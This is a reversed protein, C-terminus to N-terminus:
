FVRRKKLERVKKKLKKSEDNIVLNVGFPSQRKLEKSKLM